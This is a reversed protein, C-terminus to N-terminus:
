KAMLSWDTVPTQIIDTGQTPILQYDSTRPTSKDYQNFVCVLDFYGTPASTVTDDVNTDNDIFMMMTAGSADSVTMTSFSGAAPWTGGVITLNSFRVLRSEYFEGGSALTQDFSTAVALSPIVTTPYSYGSGIKLTTDIPCFEILGYFQGTTGTVQMMDGYTYTPNTAVGGSKYINIGMGTATDVIYTSLNTAHLNPCVVVGQITVTGTGFTSNGTADVAKLTADIPTIQIASAFAATMLSLAFLAMIKKM